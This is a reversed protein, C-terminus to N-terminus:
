TYSLGIQRGSELKEHFRQVNLDFYRDRYFGLVREFVAM